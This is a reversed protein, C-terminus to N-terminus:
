SLPSRFPGSRKMGHRIPCGGARQPQSLRGLPVQKTRTAMAVETIDRTLRGSDHHDRPHRCQGSHQRGGMRAGDALEAHDPGGEIPRVTRFECLWSNGGALRCARDRAGPEEQPAPPVGPRAGAGYTNIQFIRKWEDFDADELLSACVQMATNILVDLRGYTEVTKAVGAEIDTHDGVDLGIAVRPRLRARSASRMRSISTRSWSGDAATWAKEYCGEGQGPNRARIETVREPTVPAKAVKQTADEEFRIVDARHRLRRGGGRCM